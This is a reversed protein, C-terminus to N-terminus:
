KEMNAAAALARSIPVTQPATLAQVVALALSVTARNMHRYHSAPYDRKLRIARYGLDADLTQLVLATADEPLSPLTQVSLRRPAGTQQLGANVLAVVHDLGAALAPFAEPRPPWAFREAEDFAAAIRRLAPGALVREPRFDERALEAELDPEARAMEAFLRAAEADVPRALSLILRTVRITTDDGDEAADLNALIRAVLGLRADRPDAAAANKSTTNGRGLRVNEAVETLTRLDITEPRPKMGGPDPIPEEFTPVFPVPRGGPRDEFFFRRNRILHYAVFQAGLADPVRDVFGPSARSLHRLVREQIDPDDSREAAQAYVHAGSALFDVVDVDVARLVRGSPPAIPPQISLNHVALLRRWYASIEYSYNTIPRALLEHPDVRTRPPAPMQEIQELVDSANM